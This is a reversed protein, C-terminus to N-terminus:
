PNNTRKRSRIWWFLVLLLVLTLSFYKFYDVFSFIRKLHIPQEDGLTIFGAWFFPHAGTDTMQELYDLKATRMAEDKRKGQTLGEYFSSMMIASAQDNIPWLTMVLSPIGSYMFGRGISIVGEGRDYRGFGTECASLVVLDARLHLLNLEYAHLLDDETTDGSYTFVLNSFEPKDQNIWGHMALHIIAYSNKQAIEKFKQENADMGYFFDGVFRESLMEVETKAGPLDEINARIERVQKSGTKLQIKQYSPAFGLMQGDSKKLDREFLMLSASYHYNITYNKILYSLNKYSLNRSAELSPTQDLLVEFPIYNLLGDPIVIIQEIDDVDVIHERVYQNYVAQSNDCFRSFAVDPNRSLLKIDTLTQRLAFIQTEFKSDKPIEQVHVGSKKIGFIYIYKNGIFFELVLTKDDITEQIEALTAIKPDYKLQYYSQYDPNDELSKVLKDSQRKLELSEQKLKKVLKSQQNSSAEFLEKEVRALEVSLRREEELIEAPVDGFKRAEETKLADLLLISKSKEVLRFADERYKEEKTNQYLKLALNLTSEYLPIIEQLLFLKSDSQLMNNRMEDVLRVAEQSTTYAQSYDLDKRLAKAKATLVKLLMKRDSIILNVETNASPDYPLELSSKAKKYFELAQEIQAQEVRLDGLYRYIAAVDPHQETAHANLNLELAKFFAKDAKDYEKENLHLLGLVKYTNAERYKEKKHLIINQEIAQKGISVRNIKPAVEAIGNNLNIWARNQESLIVEVNKNASLVELGKMYYSYSKHYKRKLKLFEGLNQYITIQFTSNELAQAITLANRCYAETQAIDGKRMYLLGINNYYTAIWSSDAANKPNKLVYELGELHKDLARDYNGTRYYLAGYLQFISKLQKQNGNMHQKTIQYAEDTQAEMKKFDEKFYAVRALDKCSGVYDKWETRNKFIDKSKDLYLAASDLQNALMFTAGAYHYVKGKWKSTDALQQEAVILAEELAYVEKDFAKTRKYTIALNRLMQAVKEWCNAEKYSDKALEMYYCVSDYQASSNFQKGKQYYAAGKTAM